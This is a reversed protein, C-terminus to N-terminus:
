SFVHLVVLIVDKPLTHGLFISFLSPSVCFSSLFYRCKQLCDNISVKSLKSSCVLKHRYSQSCFSSQFLECLRTAADYGNELEHNEWKGTTSQPGVDGSQSASHGSLPFPKKRGPVVLM